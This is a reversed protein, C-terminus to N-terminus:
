IDIARNWWDWGKEKQREGPRYKKTMWPIPKIGYESLVENLYELKREGFLRMTGYPIKRERSKNYIVSNKLRKFGGANKALKKLDGITDVYRSVQRLSFYFGQTLYKNKSIKNNKLIIEIFDNISTDLSVRANEIDEKEILGKLTKNTEM